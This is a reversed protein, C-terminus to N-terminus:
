DCTSPLHDENECYFCFSNGCKCNAVQGEVFDPKEIIYSCGNRPCWKMNKNQDTMQKCHWQNYKRLYNQGDEEDPADKLYKLFFSHPVV